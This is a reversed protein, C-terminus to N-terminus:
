DIIRFDFYSTSIPFFEVIAERLQHSGITGKIQHLLNELNLKTGQAHIEVTGDPLNRVTGTLGLQRAYYHTTSRFGVGQVKGKMIAHMEYRDDQSQDM